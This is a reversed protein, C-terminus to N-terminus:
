SETFRIAPGDEPTRVEPSTLFSQKASFAAWLVPRPDNLMRADEYIWQRDLTRFGYRIAAPAECQDEMITTRRTIIAGLNQAVMKRIHHGAVRGERLQPYFLAEKAVPDRERILRAWRDNLSGADPAIVWTRGPMVGSGNYDFLSELMPFDAWVGEAAKLLPDRVRVPWGGL